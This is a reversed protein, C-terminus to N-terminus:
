IDDVGVIKLRHIDDTDIINSIVGTYRTLFYMDGRNRKAISFYSYGDSGGFQIFNEDYYTNIYIYINDSLKLRTM